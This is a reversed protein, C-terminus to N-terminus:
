NKSTSTPSCTSARGRSTRTASGFHSLAPTSASKWPAAQRRQTAIRKRHGEKRRYEPVSRRRHRRLTIRHEIADRSLPRCTRTPFPHRTRPATANADGSNCPRRNNRQHVTLRGDGPASNHRCKSPSDSVGFLACTLTHPVRHKARQDAIFGAVSMEDCGEGM